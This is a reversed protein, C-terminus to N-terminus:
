FMMLKGKTKKFRYNTVYVPKDTYSFLEKYIEQKRYEPMFQEFQIGFAEAGLPISKDILEKTREPTEAQVMTTLIAKDYKLFTKKMKAGGDWQMEEVM